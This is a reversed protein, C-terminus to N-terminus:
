ATMLEKSRDRLAQGTRELYRPPCSPAPMPLDGLVRRDLRVWPTLYASLTRPLGLRPGVLHGLARLAPLDVIRPVVGWAQCLATLTNNLTPLDPDFWTWTDQRPERTAAESVVTAAAGAEGVYCPFEGRDAIPAPLGKLLYPLAAVIGNRWSPLVPSDAGLIPGFRVIRYPVDGAARVTAEALFKGYEYWSRFRQGVDLDDNRVPDPCRGFVLVSSVHVYCRLGPCSRAFALLNDTGRSHVRLVEGPGAATDVSGFCAVIHTVRDRLAGATDEALGLRPHTVDGFVWDATGPPRHRSMVTVPFGRGTLEAVVASGLVGTGGVVLVTM